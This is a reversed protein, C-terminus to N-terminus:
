SPWVGTLCRDAQASSIDTVLMHGPAHSIAFAPKAKAIAAQPTVGCAWFVPVENPGIEVSDGWDPKAIDAIGIQSPDGFHIPAGHALKFRNCIIAAEIAHATTMPRMSVVVPGSFKGAPRTQLSTRYMPVTVCDLQHRLPIGAASLADEFSFSCGISFSVLDDRWYASLEEPEDVLEGNKYVCYRPVDYRLDIDEGLTPLSPDGPAGVALLPCPRPNMQCFRLFDSADEAPLIALNAQLADGGVGTTSKKFRGARIESRVFRPNSLDFSSM